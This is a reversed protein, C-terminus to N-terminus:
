SRRVKECDVAVDDARDGKVRDGSSGCRVEDPKRDRASLRDAGGAGDLLDRGKGGILKDGGNEGLLADPGKGGLIQDNGNEGEIQNARGNGILIDAGEGGIIDELDAKANDRPGTIDTSAVGDDPKGDLSVRLGQHVGGYITVFNASRGVWDVTDTGPGGSYSDASQDLAEAELFDDGAGGQLNDAGLEGALHDDGGGGTLSDDGNGAFLRDGGGAGDLVDNGGNGELQNNVGSGTISDNGDGGNVQEVDPQVNDGECSAGPCASGDDATGDETIHLDEIRNSYSLADRGDGGAVADAGNAQTGGDIFDGGPGGDISDDGSGGVLDDDGGNGSIADNESGGDLRDSGSSGQLTDNGAEGFFSSNSNAGPAMLDNGPGGSANVAPSFGQQLRVDDAVHVQDNLDGLDIDVFGVGAIACSVQNANVATCGPGALIPAGPDSFVFNGGSQTMTVDNTENPFASYVLQSAAVGASSAAAGGAFLLSCSLGLVIV